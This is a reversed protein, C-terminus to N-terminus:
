FYGQPMKFDVLDGLLVDAMGEARWVLIQKKSTPKDDDDDDEEEEADEEEAEESSEGVDEEARGKGKDQGEEASQDDSAGNLNADDQKITALPLMAGVLLREKVDHVAVVVDDIVVIMARLGNEHHDYPFTELTKCFKRANEHAEPVDQVFAQNHVRWAGGAMAAVARAQQLPTNDSYGLLNGYITFLSSSILIHITDRETVRM